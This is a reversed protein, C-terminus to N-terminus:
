KNKRVTIFAGKGIPKTIVDPDLQKIPKPAVQVDSSPAPQVSQVSHEEFDPQPDDVKVRTIRDTIEAPLLRWELKSPMPLGSASISERLTAFRGPIGSVYYWYFQKPFQSPKRTELSKSLAREPDLVLTDLFSQASPKATPELKTEPEPKSSKNKSAKPEKADFKGRLLLMAFALFIIGVAVGSLPLILAVWLPLEIVKLLIEM